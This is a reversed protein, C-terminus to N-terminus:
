KSLSLSLSLSFAHSLLPPASLSLLLSLSDWAPEVGDACLRVHSETEHVTLDHGSSFGLTLCKVLDTLGCKFWTLEGPQATTTSLLSIFEGLGLISPSRPTPPSPSADAM